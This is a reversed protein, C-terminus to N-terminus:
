INRPFCPLSSPSGWLPSFQQFFIQQPISLNNKCCIDSAYTGLPFHLTSRPNGWYTHIYWAAMIEICRQLSVLESKTSAKIVRWLFNQSLQFGLKTLCHTDELQRVEPAPGGHLALPYAESLSHKWQTASSALFGPWKLCYLNKPHKGYSNFYQGQRVGARM